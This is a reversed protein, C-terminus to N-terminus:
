KKSPTVKKFYGRVMRRAKAGYHKLQMKYRKLHNRLPTRRKKIFKAGAAVGIKIHEEHFYVSRDDPQTFVYRHKKLFEALVRVADGNDFSKENLTIGVTKALKILRAKYDDGTKPKQIIAHYLLSYFFDEAAAVYFGKKNLERRKLIDVEWLPDYYNDGINRFDFFVKEGKIIVENYVRYKQTFVARANTILSADKYDAVLLDIDGHNKAYYKDPLADFNRLVVYDLTNNLVYLLQELSEWGDAGVVDKKYVEIKRSPKGFTKVLDAANKGFLLTLDHDVEEPSNTGHVRHGGGTWERHTAKATFLNSNVTKDGKSTTHTKYVPNKDEVIVALFPNTGVHAEKKANPPLNTGYFRSLNQTFKQKSWHVEYVKLITFRNAIDDLIKEEIVRAHEWIILLHVESNTNNSSKKPM